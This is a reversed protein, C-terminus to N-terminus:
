KDTDAINVNAAVADEYKEIATTNLEAKQAVTTNKLEKVVNQKEDLLKIQKDLKQIKGDLKKNELEFEKQRKIEDRKQREESRKDTDLKKDETAKQIKYGLVKFESAVFPLAFIVLMGIAFIALLILITWGFIIM